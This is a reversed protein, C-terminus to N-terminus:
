DELYDWVIKKVETVDDPMVGFYKVINRITNEIHRKYYRNSTRPHRKNWITSYAYGNNKMDVIVDFEYTYNMGGRWQESKYKRINTIKFVANKLEPWGYTPEINHLKNFLLKKFVKVDNDKLAKSIKM